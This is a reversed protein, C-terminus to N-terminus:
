KELFKTEIFISLIKLLEKNQLPQNYSDLAENKLEETLDGFEELEPFLIDVVTNKNWECHFQVSLIHDNYLAMENIITDNTPNSTALQKIDINDNNSNNDGVDLVSDGHGEFVKYDKVNEIQLNYRKVYEKVFDQQYFYDTFNLTEAKCIVKGHPNVEVIGSAVQATLQFSFCSVIIPIRQHEELKFVTNKMWNYLNSIWGLHGSDLNQDLKSSCSSGTFIIADVKGEEIDKSGPLTENKFLQVVEWNINEEIM